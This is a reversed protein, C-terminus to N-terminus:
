VLYPRIFRTLDRKQLVNHIQDPTALHDLYQAAVTANFDDAGKQHRRLSRDQPVPTMTLLEENAILRSLAEYACLAAHMGLRFPGMVQPLPFVNCYIDGTDMEQAHIQITAGVHDPCQDFLAWFNSPGGCYYPSIGMHIDIAGNDILFDCLEGKHYGAGCVVIFDADFAPELVRMSTHKLDGKAFSLQRINKGKFSVDGFVSREAAYVRKFYQQLVGPPYAPQIPGCEQIVYLEDAVLGLRNVLAIHRPQNGTIITIKM